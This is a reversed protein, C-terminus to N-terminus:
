RRLSERSIARRRTSVPSAASEGERVGEGLWHSSMWAMFDSEGLHLDNLWVAGDRTDVQEASASQHLVCMTPPAAEGKGAERFIAQLTCPNSECRKASALLEGAGWTVTDYAQKEKWPLASVRRGGGGGSRKAPGSRRQAVVEPKSWGALVSRLDDANLHGKNGRDYIHYLERMEQLQEATLKELAKAETEQKLEPMQIVLLIDAYDKASTKSFFLARCLEDVDVEGSGDADLTAFMSGLHRNLHAGDPGQQMKAFEIPDIEGSGDVDLSRFLRRVNWVEDRPFPGFLAKKRLRTRTELDVAVEWDAPLDPHSPASREKKKRLRAAVAPEVRLNYLTKGVGGAAKQVKEKAHRRMSELSERRIRSKEYDSATGGGGGGGGGGEGGGAGSGSSLDYKQLLKEIQAPRKTEMMKSARRNRRVEARDPKVESRPAAAREQGQGQQQQQQLGKSIGELSPMSASMAMRGDATASSRRRGGLGGLVGQATNSRQMSRTSAAGGKANSTLKGIHKDGFWDGDNNVAMSERREKASPLFMAQAGFSSSSSPDFHPDDGLMGLGDMGSRSGGIEDLDDWAASGAERAREDNGGSMSMALQSYESWVSDSVGSRHSDLTYDPHFGMADGDLIHSHHREVQSHVQDMVEEGEGKIRGRGKEKFIHPYLQKQKNESTIAWNMQHSPALKLNQLHRKAKTMELLREFPPFNAMVDERIAANGEEEEEEEEKGGKSESGGGGGSGDEGGSGGGEKGEEVSRPRLMSGQAAGGGQRGRVRAPSLVAAATHPRIQTAGGMAGGGTSGDIAAEPQSSMNMQRFFVDHRSAPRPVSDPLQLLSRHSGSNRGSGGGGGSGGGMLRRSATPVATAAHRPVEGARRPSSSSFLEESDLLAGRPAGIRSAGSRSAGGNSRSTAIPRAKRSPPMKRTTRFKNKRLSSKVVPPRQAGARQAGARRTAGSGGSSTAHSTGIPPPNLHSSRLTARLSELAERHKQEETRPRSAITTASRPKAARLSHGGREEIEMEEEEERAAAANTVAAESALQINAQVERSHLVDLSEQRARELTLSWDLPLRPRVPRDIPSAQRIIGLSSGDMSWLCISRDFSTTLIVQHARERTETVVSQICRVADHHAHWMRMATSPGLENHRAERSLPTRIDGEPKVEREVRRHPFYDAHRCVMDEQQLPEIGPMALVKGLDWVSIQGTDDGMLLLQKKGNHSAGAHAGKGDGVGEMVTDVKSMRRRVHNSSTDTHPRDPPTEIHCLTTVVGKKLAPDDAHMGETGDAGKKGKKGEKGEKGESHSGYLGLPSPKGLRALGPRYEIIELPRVLEISRGGGRVKALASPRVPWIM